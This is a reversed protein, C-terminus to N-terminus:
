CKSTDFTWRFIAVRIINVSLDSIFSGEDYVIGGYMCYTAQFKRKPSFVIHVHIDFCFM